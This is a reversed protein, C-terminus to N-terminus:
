LVVDSPDHNILVFFLFFSREVIMGSCVFYLLCQGFWLFPGINGVREGDQIVIVAAEKGIVVRAETWEERLLNYKNLTEIM